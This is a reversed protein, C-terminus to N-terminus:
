DKKYPWGPVAPVTPIAQFTALRHEADIWFQRVSEVDPAPAPMSVLRATLVANKYDFEDVVVKPELKYYIAGGFVAITLCIILTNKNM